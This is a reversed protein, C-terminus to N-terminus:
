GHYLEARTQDKIAQATKNWKGKMMGFTGQATRSPKLILVKVKQEVHLHEKQVLEKPLTIGLSNGWRRTITECEAM